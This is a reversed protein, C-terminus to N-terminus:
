SSEGQIQELTMALSPSDGWWKRIRVDALQSDNAYFGMRQLVDCVQKCLNDFDPKVFCPHPGTRRRKASDCKRWPFTFSLSLALPGSMPIEPRHPVLLAALATAEEQVDAPQYHHVFQRGGSSTAIRSRDGQKGRTQWPIVCHIM